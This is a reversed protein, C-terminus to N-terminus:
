DHVPAGSRAAALAPQGASHLGVAGSDSAGGLRRVRRGFRAVLWVSRAMAFILAGPIVTVCVIAYAIPVVGFFGVMLVAVPSLVVALIAGGAAYVPLWGTQRLALAISGPAFQSSDADLRTALRTLYWIGTLQTLLAGLLTALFAVGLVVDGGPGAVARFMPNPSFPDALASIMLASIGGVALVTSSIVFLRNLSRAM